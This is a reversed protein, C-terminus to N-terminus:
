SASEVHLPEPVRTRGDRLSTPLSAPPDTAPSWGIAVPRIGARRGTVDEFAATWDAAFRPISFRELAIRRGSAGLEGALDRDALLARMGDLLVDRDTAIIGSVGDEIVVPIETTAFAVVPMGIMMAELLGLGLSTYRIPNFFFRYRAEFAALDPRRIEGLGGLRTANM